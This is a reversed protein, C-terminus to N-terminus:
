PSARDAAMTLDLPVREHTTLDVMVALDRPVSAWGDEDLGSSVVQVSNHKVRYDMTFYDTVHRRPIEEEGEFMERLAEAPPKAHSNIHVAFMRDPTLMLANLSSTPFERVLTALGRTVGAPEDGGAEEICQLLFRFYRESDTDGRLRSRSEPTLLDELDQIPSVHGNHAFAYRGDEVFPHTNEPKVALGGTAWRLHVLGAGGLPRDVLEAYTTDRAASDPSSACAIRGSDPDRWAMGWGDAHVVTLATFEALAEEGILDVVATPREAVYGLLRCM